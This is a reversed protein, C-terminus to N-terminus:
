LQEYSMSLSVTEQQPKGLWLTSGLMLRKDDWSISVITNSIIIFKFDYELGDNLYTELIAKLKVSYKEGPLFELYDNFAIPGIEICIKSTYDVTKSGVFSTEGLLNKSSGLPPADKLELWTPVFENIKMKFQPFLYGLLIKLGSKNRVRQSFLGSFKLLTYDSLSTTNSKGFFGRGSFSNIRQIIKNNKESNLHLYFRYKKWSQYYLWYFRNNFIDMFNQLPVQGRGLVRQQFDVQEHYCRPLPSNIGYLGLFTLIFNIKGDESHVSKIDSPPYEYKEFPQFSLGTQEFVSDDRGPFLKKVYNDAIRVAQWVNYSPGNKVLDNIVSSSNERIDIGM